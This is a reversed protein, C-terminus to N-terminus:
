LYPIVKELALGRSGKVFVNSKKIDLKSIEAILEKNSKYFRTNMRGLHKNAYFYSGIFFYEVGSKVNKIVKVHEEKSSEGLELMDGIIAYKVIGSAETFHELSEKLSFPNSNYTDVVVINDKETRLIQSRMNSPTYDEIAQISTEIPIDFYESITLAAAVNEINYNGFLNTSISFAENGKKLEFSLALSKSDTNIQYRSTQTTSYGISGKMEIQSLFPDGVNVFFTGKREKIKKYLSSKELFVGEQSKLKELHTKGINTILGFDPNTIDCLEEIDGPQNSGMEVIVFEASLPISLLTLPVGIHNNQNGTTCYTESHYRKLIAFLLEKTTTKGNSGTLGIINGNIQSRHYTALRQLALLVDDVYIVSLSPELHDLKEDVVVAIAGHKLAQKGYKNGNFNPGKLAFFLNGEEIARTDTSVGSSNQFLTYLRKIL